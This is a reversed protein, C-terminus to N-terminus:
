GYVYLKLLVAPHYGPRGTSAPAARSFGLDRLDLADVFADVVRVPNDAEVYDDLRDPFLTAQGREVGEVYGGDAVEPEIGFVVLGAVKWVAEAM